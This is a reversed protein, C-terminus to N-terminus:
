SVMVEHHLVSGDFWAITDVFEVRRWDGDGRAVQDGVVPEAVAPLFVVGVVTVVRGEVTEVQRTTHEWRGTVQVPVGWTPGDPGDEVWHRVQVTDPTPVLVGLISVM